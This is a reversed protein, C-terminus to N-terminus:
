VSMEPQEIVFVSEPSKNVKLMKESESMLMRSEVRLPREVVRSERMKRWSEQSVRWDVVEELRWFLSKYELEALTVIWFTVILEDTLPIEASSVLRSILSEVKLSKPFEPVGSSPAQRFAVFECLTVMELEVKSFLM